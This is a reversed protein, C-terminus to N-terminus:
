RLRAACMAALFLIVVIAVIWRPALCLFTCISVSLVSAILVGGLDRFRKAVVM